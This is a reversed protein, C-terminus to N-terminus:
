LIPLSFHTTRIQAVAKRFHDRAVGIFGVPRSRGKFQEVVEGEDDCESLRTLLECV